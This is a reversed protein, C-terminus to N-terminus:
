YLLKDFYAQVELHAASSGPSVGLTRLIKWGRSDGFLAM